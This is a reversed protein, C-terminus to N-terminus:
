FVTLIEADSIGLITEAHPPFIRQSCPWFICLIHAFIHAFMRLFIRLIHAVRFIPDPRGGWIEDGM